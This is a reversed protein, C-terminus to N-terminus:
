RLPELGPAEKKQALFQLGFQTRKRIKEFRKLNRPYKKTSSNKDTKENEM